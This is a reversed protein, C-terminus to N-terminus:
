GGGENEGETGVGQGEKACVSIWGDVSGFEARGYGDDKGIVSM